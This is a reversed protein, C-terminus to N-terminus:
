PLLLSLFTPVQSASTSAQVAQEETDMDEATDGDARPLQIQM